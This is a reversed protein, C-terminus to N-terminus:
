KYLKLMVQKGLAYKRTHLIPRLVEQMVLQLLMFVM